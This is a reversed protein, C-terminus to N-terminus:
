RVPRGVLASTDVASRREAKRARCCIGAPYTKDFRRMRGRFRATDESAWGGFVSEVAIRQRDSALADGSFAYGRKVKVRM